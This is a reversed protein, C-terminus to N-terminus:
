LCKQKTPKSARTSNNRRAYFDLNGRQIYKKIYKIMGIGDIMGHKAKIIYKMRLWSIGTVSECEYSKFQKTTGDLYVIEVISAKANMISLKRQEQDAMHMKEVRKRKEGESLQLIHKKLANSITEPLSRNHGHVYHDRKEGNNVIKKLKGCGCACEVYIFKHTIIFKGQQDVTKGCGCACLYRPVHGKIYKKHITTSNPSTLGVINGCGCSCSKPMWGNDLRWKKLSLKIKNKVIEKKCPHNKVYLNRYKSYDKSYKINHKNVSCMLYVSYLMKNKSINDIQIKYLLKHAIFHERFGLVILNDRDDSGGLSKPIIHHLEHFSSNYNIKRAKVINILNNYIKNYDM